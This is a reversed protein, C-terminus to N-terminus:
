DSSATSAFSHKTARFLDPKKQTNEVYLADPNVSQKGGRLIRGELLYYLIRPGRQSTEPTHPGTQAPM